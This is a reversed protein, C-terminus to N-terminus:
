KCLLKLFFLCCLLHNVSCASLIIKHSTPNETPAIAKAIEFGVFSIITESLSIGIIM